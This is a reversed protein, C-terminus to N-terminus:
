RGNVQRIKGDALLGRLPLNIMPFGPAELSMDGPIQPPSGLRDLDRLSTIQTGLVPYTPAIFAGRREYVAVMFAVQSPGNALVQATVTVVGNLTATLTGGVLEVTLEAHPQNGWVDLPRVGAPLPATALVAPDSGAAQQLELVMEETFTGGTRVARMEAGVWSATATDLRLAIGARYVFEDADADPAMELPNKLVISARVNRGEVVNSPGAAFGRESFADGPDPVAPSRAYVWGAAGGNGVRFYTNPNPEVEWAIAGGADHTLAYREWSGPLPGSAADTFDFTTPEAGVEALPQALPLLPGGGFPAGYGRGWTM